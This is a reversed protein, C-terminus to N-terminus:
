TVLGPEVEFLKLFDQMDARSLAVHEIHPLLKFSRFFGFRHLRLAGLDEGCAQRGRQLYRAFDAYIEGTRRKGISQESTYQPNVSSYMRFKITLELFKEPM